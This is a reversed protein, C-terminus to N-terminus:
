SENDVSGKGSTEHVCHEAIGTNLGMSLFRQNFQRTRLGLSPSPVCCSANRNQMSQKLPTHGLVLRLDLMHHPSRSVSIRCCVLTLADKGLNPRLLM